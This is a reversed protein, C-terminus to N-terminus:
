DASRMIRVPKVSRIVLLPVLMSLLIAPLFIAVVVLSSMQMPSLVTLNMILPSKVFEAMSEVILANAKDLLLPFAVFSAVAVFIWLSIVQWVFCAVIHGTKYIKKINRLEIM